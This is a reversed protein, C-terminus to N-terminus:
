PITARPASSSAQLVLPTSAPANASLTISAATQTSVGAPLGLVQINITGAFGNLSGFSLTEGTYGPTGFGYPQVQVRPEWNAGPDCGDFAPCTTLGGRVLFGTGAPSGICFDPPPPATSGSGGQALAPAAATSALLSAVLVLRKLTTRARTLFRYRRFM